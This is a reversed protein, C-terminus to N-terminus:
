IPGLKIQPGITSSCGFNPVKCLSECNYGKVMQCPTTKEKPKAAKIKSDSLLDKAM